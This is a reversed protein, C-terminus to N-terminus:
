LLAQVGHNASVYEFDLEEVSATGDAVALFRRAPSRSGSEIAVSVVTRVAESGVVSVMGYIPRPGEGAEAHEISIKVARRFRPYFIYTIPDPLMWGGAFGLLASTIVVDMWGLGLCLLLLPIVVGHYVMWAYSLYRIARLRECCLMPLKAILLSVAFVALGLSIPAILIVLAIQRWAM